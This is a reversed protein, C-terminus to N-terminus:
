FKYSKYAATWGVPYSWGPFQGLFQKFQASKMQSGHTYHGVLALDLLENGDYHSRPVEVELWFEFSDSEKGSSAFIYYTPRGMKWEPGALLEGGALSWSRLTIGIAPSIFVGMHDPGVARFLLKRTGIDPAATQTLNLSLPTWLKPAPAPLWHNKRLLTSAPYYIPVGCYLMETCEKERIEKAEKLEPLWTNLVHPSNRDLNVMFYGTDARTEAGAVDYFHRETHIVLARHPALNTASASYPFGLKTFLCLGMTVMTTVYLCTIIRMPRETVMVLPCLFSIMALTMSAAKYGIILDPNVASGARSMIPIFMTFTTLVLCMHLILPVLLSVLHVLFWRLDKQRRKAPNLDYTRDLAARGLMPLLTWFMCFFSSKLRLLTMALTFVTWILKSVQVCLRCIPVYYPHIM